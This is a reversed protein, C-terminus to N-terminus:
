VVKDGSIQTIMNKYCICDYFFASEQTNSGTITDVVHLLGSPHLHTKLLSFVDAGNKLLHLTFKFM